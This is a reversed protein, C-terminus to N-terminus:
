GIEHLIRHTSLTELAATLPLHRLNNDDLSPVSPPPSCQFPDAGRSSSGDEDSLIIRLLLSDGAAAARAPM